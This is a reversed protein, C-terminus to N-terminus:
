RHTPHTLQLSGQSSALLAGRARDIGRAVNL